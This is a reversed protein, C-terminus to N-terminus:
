GAPVGAVYAGPVFLVYRNASPTCGVPAACAIRAFTTIAVIAAGTCTDYAPSPPMWSASLWLRAIASSSTHPLM